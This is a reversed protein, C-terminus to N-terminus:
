IFVQLMIHLEEINKDLGSTEIEPLISRVKTRVRELVHSPVNHIDFFASDDVSSIILIIKSLDIHNVNTNIIFQFEISNTLLPGPLDDYYLFNINYRGRDLFIPTVYYPNNDIVKLVTDYENDFTVEHGEKKNWDVKM